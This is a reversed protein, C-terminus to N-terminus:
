PFIKYDMRCRNLALLDSQTCIEHNERYVPEDGTLDKYSIHPLIHGKYNENPTVVRLNAHEAAARLFKENCPTEHFSDALRGFEYFHGQSQPFFSYDCGVLTIDKFGMCVALGLMGGLGSAMSTFSHDLKCDTFTDFPKDFHHIYYINDDRIGFYNSLSLFYSVDKHLRIKEKYFAGYINKEFKRTYPNTWYPYYFFPHGEFHYKVNMKKFDRHVSLPGCSIVIKDDFKKLDFYKLSAGNGFLYCSEGQHIGGFKKNRKLTKKALLSLTKNKLHSM